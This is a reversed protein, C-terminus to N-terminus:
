KCGWLRYKSKWLLVAKYALGYQCIRQFSSFRRTFFLGLIQPLCIFVLFMTKALPLPYFLSPMRPLSHPKKPSSPQWVWFGHLLRWCSGASLRLPAKWEASGIESRTKRHIAKKYKNRTVESSAWTQSHKWVLRPFNLDGTWPCSREPGVTVELSWRPTQHSLKQLTVLPLQIKRPRCTCCCKSGSRGLALAPFHQM